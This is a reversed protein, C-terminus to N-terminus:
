SCLNSNDLPNRMTIMKFFSEKKKKLEHSSISNASGDAILLKLLATM